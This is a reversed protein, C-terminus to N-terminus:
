GTKRKPDLWKLTEMMKAEEKFANYWLQYHGSKKATHFITARFMDTNSDRGKALMYHFVCQSIYRKTEEETYETKNLFKIFQINSSM